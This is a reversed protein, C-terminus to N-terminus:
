CGQGVKDATLASTSLRVLLVLVALTSMEAWDLWWGRYTLIMTGAVADCTTLTTVEGERCHFELTTLHRALGRECCPSQPSAIIWLIPKGLVAFRGVMGGDHLDYIYPPCKGQINRRREGERRWILRWFKGMSRCM